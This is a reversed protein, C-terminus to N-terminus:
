CNWVIIGKRRSWVHIRSYLWKTTLKRKKFCFRKKNWSCIESYNWSLQATIIMHTNTLLLCNNNVKQLKFVWSTYIGWRVYWTLGWEDRHNEAAKAAAMTWLFRTKRKYWCLLDESDLTFNLCALLWQMLTRSVALSEYPLLVFSDM